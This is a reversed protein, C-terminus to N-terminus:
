EKVIKNSVVTGNNLMVKTFYMGEQLNETNISYKTNNVNDYAAVLEGVMNYIKINKIMDSTNSITVTSTVPNPYISFKGYANLNKIGVLTGTIQISDVYYTAAAGTTSTYRFAICISDGKYSDLNINSKQWASSATGNPLPINAGTLTDWQHTAATTDPLGNRWKTSVMVIMAPGAYKACKSSFSFNVGSYLNTSFYPSIYWQDTLLNGSTSSYGNGKLENINGATYHSIIWNYNCTTQLHATDWGGYTLAPGKPFPMTTTDQALAAASSDMVNLNDPAGYVMYRYIPLPRYQHQGYTLGTAFFMAVVIATLLSKMKM